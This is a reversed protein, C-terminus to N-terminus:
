YLAKIAGWTSDLQIGDEVAVPGLGDDV